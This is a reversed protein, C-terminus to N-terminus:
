SGKIVRLKPAQAGDSPLPAQAHEARPEIPAPEARERLTSSVADKLADMFMQTRMISERVAEEGFLETIERVFQDAFAAQTLLHGVLEKSLISENLQFARAVEAFHSRSCRQSSEEPADRFFFTWCQFQDNRDFQICVDLEENSSVVIFLRDDLSTREFAAALEQLSLSM